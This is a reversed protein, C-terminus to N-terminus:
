PSDEGELLQELIVLQILHRAAVEAAQLEARYGADQASLVSLFSDQGTRYGRVAADVGERTLPLISGVLLRLQAASERAEALAREVEATLAAQEAELRRRAAEAETRAAEALQRQKRGAWIPLRVGAFASFFDAGLPRAGYRASFVFDPRGQLAVAKATQEAAEIDAQRSQLRPHGSAADGAEIRALHNAADGLMAVVSDPEIPPVVLREPGRIGRAARLDARLRAAEGELAASDTALRALAIRAQLPDSPPVSGTGYRATAIEVVGGLVHRQRALIAQGTAVYRLRYYATAVRTIVDRRLVAASAHAARAAAGAARTQAALTGPWPLAQSLEGDVETFDSERFAFRPLVLDMVGVMLMPDALAGAPRVRSAAARAQAEAGLIAPASRIAERTLRSLLSDRGPVLQGGARAPMGLAAGLWLGALGVTKCHM